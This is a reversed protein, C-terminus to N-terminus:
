KKIGALRRAIHQRVLPIKCAAALKVARQKNAAVAPEIGYWIMLPLNPDDADQAHSVLGQAIMWRSEIPIRQLMSAIALRVHASPDKAAMVAVEDLVPKPPQHGPLDVLLRVGWARVHEDPDEMVQRQFPYGMVHLTWLQRLRPKPDREAELLATLRVAAQKLSVAELADLKMSSRKQLIRRATRVYWDNKHTHLEVLKRNSLKNLDVKVPKVDGFSIKFIRGTKKQPNKNHHCEGTDSWDTMYVAGDPGYKLELGRFWQDSVFLFDKDHTAVYGSAKRTISDQNIRRGHLNCTFARGRYQDPWNDGYYLMLGAHAHGGGAKDHEGVAGRSDTWKGQGWHRHDACSQMLEYLNPNFDNGYMRKYHGGPVIHFLHKIVCNSIFLQGYEDFDLGWPNTTGHAVVEFVHRTPHYRWVGCNIPTRKEKPTGPKGVQSTDLIGHGGYVWGDPGWTLCNFVNHKVKTIAFGDLLVQPPGDPKDDGDRDPIFIFEPTSCLWVGGFGLAIGSLNRGKDFFITRKDAQGDGNTDELILVRDNGGDTKWDPYSTSEVVWLRGRPDIDFAIPQVIDPEASYVTAKFGAPLKLGKLAEGPTSLIGEVLDARPPKPKKKKTKQPKDQALVASSGLLTVILLCATWRLLYKM